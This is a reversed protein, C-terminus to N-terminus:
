DSSLFRVDCKLHGVEAASVIHSLFSVENERELLWVNEALKRSDKSQLEKKETAYVFHRWVQDAAPMDSSPTQVSILAYHKM